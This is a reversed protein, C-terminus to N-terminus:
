KATPKPLPKNLWNAPDGLLSSDPRGFVSYGPNIIGAETKNQTPGTGATGINKFTLEVLFTNSKQIDQYDINSQYLGVALGFCDDQYGVGIRNSITVGSSLNRTTSGFLRWYESLKLIGGLNVQERAGTTTVLPDQAFYAYGIQTTLPGTRAMVDFENRSFKFNDRNIRFRHSIMLNDNPSLQIAGVYDSKQDRLGSAASFSTDEELRYSQGFLFSAQGGDNGYLSYRLGVSARMGSEWRDYGPFRNDSFLNTENFEVSLSDQNPIKDTNNVKPAVIIEAIPELVQRVSSGNNVFPYSVEAGATPLFRAVSEEGYYAASSANEIPANDTSYLDGRASAFLHYVQGAVSTFNKDWRFTTSLRRSDLGAPTGLVMMNSNFSLRGDGLVNSFDHDINIIPAVWPTNDNNTTTLLSRFYYGDATFSDRGDFHEVYLRNTLETAGSMGYKRLYTDDTALQALFGWDWKPAIDFNGDGFLSGRFDSDGQTGPTKTKPWTATGFFRYSGSEVRHRFEGQYVPGEKTTFRPAFTADMNPKIAWYYPVTLEQGLDSSSGFSPMLFGSQRKVTPDPHSFFPTYLVPIGFLEMYADEYIIRKTEANHVVRFAKIQWIPTTQGEEKCIKCPSYVGRHLTTLTGNQRVADHGALRSKDTMLISLTDVVGDKMKNRLVLHDAFAVDGTTELLSVNGDATVIDAQQDYIVKDAMLVRGDYAIEVHGTATVIKKDSNYFLNDAQMLVEGSQPYAPATSPKAVSTAADARAASSSAGFALILACAAVALTFARGTGMGSNM